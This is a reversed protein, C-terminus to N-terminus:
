CVCCCLETQVCLVLKYELNPNFCCNELANLSSSLLDTDEQTSVDSSSVCVTLDNYKQILTLIRRECVSYRLCQHHLSSLVMGLALGSHFQVAQSDDASPSGPLGAQLASLVQVLADRQWVVLVPVLLSLALSACSRAIASATNEGSYSRQCLFSM